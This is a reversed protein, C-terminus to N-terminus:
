VQGLEPLQKGFGLPHDDQSTLHLFDELHQGSLQVELLLPTPLTPPEWRGPPLRSRSSKDPLEELDLVQGLKGSIAM